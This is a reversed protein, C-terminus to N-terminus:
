STREQLEAKEEIKLWPFDYAAIASKGNKIIDIDDFNDRIIEIATINQESKAVIWLSQTINLDKIINFVTRKSHLDQQTWWFNLETDICELHISDKFLLAISIALHPLSRFDISASNRRLSADKVLQKLDTHFDNQFSLLYQVVIKYLYDSSSSLRLNTLWDKLKIQLSDWEQSRPFHKMLLALSIFSEDDQKSYTLNNIKDRILYTQPVCHELAKGTINHLEYWKSLNDNSLNALSLTEINDQKTLVYEKLTHLHKFANKQNTNKGINEILRNIGPSLAIKSIDEIGCWHPDISDLEVLASVCDQDEFKWSPLSNIWVEFLTNIEKAFKLQFRLLIPTIGITFKVKYNESHSDSPIFSSIQSACAALFYSSHNDLLETVTQKNGANVAEKVAEKLLLQLGKKPSVGYLMGAMEPIIDTKNGLPSFNNPLTALRLGSIIEETSLKLKAISTIAISELSVESGWRLTNIGIQNIYRRMYRPTPSTDVNSHYRQFVECIEGRTNDDWFSGTLAQESIQSLYKTWSSFVPSPVDISVQITKELFSDSNENNSISSLLQKTAKKDYPLIFWVKEMEESCITNDHQFYAQLTAWISKISEADLRDLNDIIIVANRVNEQQKFVDSLVSTFHQEFEISNSENEETIKQIHTETIDGQMFQLKNSSNCFSYLVTWIAPSLTLTIGSLALWNIEGPSLTITKFDVSSLIASGVPILLMSFALCKSFFSPYQNNVITIEKKNGLINKELESTDIEYKDRLRTLLNELFIRRLPDGKHAWADFNIVITNNNFMGELINAVTTKGTGWPGELGITLGHENQSILDFIQKAVKEHSKEELTDTKVSEERLLTFSYPSNFSPQGTDM